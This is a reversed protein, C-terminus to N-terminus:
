EIVVDAPFRGAAQACKFFERVEEDTIPFSIGEGAHVVWGNPPECLCYFDIADMWGCPRDLFPSDMGAM